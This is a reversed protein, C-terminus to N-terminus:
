FSSLKVDNLRPSPVMAPDLPHPKLRNPETNNVM